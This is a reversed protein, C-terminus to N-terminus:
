AEATDNWATSALLCFRCLRIIEGFAGMAYGNITRLAALDGMLGGNGMSNFGNILSMLQMPNVPMDSSLGLTNLLGMANALSPNQVFALYTQLTQLYTQATNLDTAAEHLGSTEDLIYTKLDLAYQKVQNELNQVWGVSDAFIDTVPIQAHAPAASLLCGALAAATVSHRM